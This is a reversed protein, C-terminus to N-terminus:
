GDPEAGLISVANKEWKGCNEWSIYRGEGGDCVCTYRGGNTFPHISPHIRSYSEREVNNSKWWITKSKKRNRTLEIMQFFKWKKSRCRNWTLKLQMLVLGALAHSVKLIEHFLFQGALKISRSFLPIEETLWDRLKPVEYTHSNGNIELVEIHTTFVLCIHSNGSIVQVKMHTNKVVCTHNKDFVSSRGFHKTFVVCTHSFGFM